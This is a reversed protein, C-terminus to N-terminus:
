PLARTMEVISHTPHSPLSQRRGTERFGANHYLARAAPHHAPAWLGLHQLGQERAWSVVAQVLTSGVGRQRWAPDVWLGGVRGGDRRAHDRLGYVCGPVLDGVCALFLVHRGPETVSRTLEEWYSWPQAVQEAYTEGFSTPADRLARLRVDRHLGVEDPALTRLQLQLVGDAVQTHEAM